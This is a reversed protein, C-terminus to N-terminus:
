FSLGYVATTSGVPVPLNELPVTAVTVVCTGPLFPLMAAGLCRRNMERISTLIPSMFRACFTFSSKGKEAVMGAPVVQEPVTAPWDLTQRTFITFGDPAPGNPPTM